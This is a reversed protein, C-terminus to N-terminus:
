YAVRTHTHTCNGPTVKGGSGVRRRKPTELGCVKNGAWLTLALNWRVTPFTITIAAYPGLELDLESGHIGDEGKEARDGLVQLGAGM